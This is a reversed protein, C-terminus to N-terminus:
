TQLQHSDRTIQYAHGERWTYQKFPSNPRPDKTFFFPIQFIFEVKIIADDYQKTKHYQVAEPNSNLRSTIPSKCSLSEVFLFQGTEAKTTQQSKKASEYWNSKPLNIKLNRSIQTQDSTSEYWILQSPHNITSPQHCRYHHQFDLRRYLYNPVWFQYNISLSSWWGRLHLPGLDNEKRRKKGVVYSFTWFLKM